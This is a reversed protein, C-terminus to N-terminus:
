SCLVIQDNQMMGCIGIGELITCFSGADDLLLECIGIGEGTYELVYWYM